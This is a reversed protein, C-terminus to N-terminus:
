PTGPPTPAPAPQHIVQNSRNERVTTAELPYISVYSTGTPTPTLSPTPSPGSLATAISTPTAGTGPIHNLFRLSIDQFQELVSPQMAFLLIIVLTLTAAVLRVKSPLRIKQSLALLNLNTVFWGIQHLCRPWSLKMLKENPNTRGAIVGSLQDELQQRFNDNARPIIGTLQIYIESFSSLDEAQDFEDNDFNEFKISKEQDWLTLNDQEFM